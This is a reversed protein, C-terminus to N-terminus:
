RFNQICCGGGIKVRNKHVSENAVFVYCIPTRQVLYLCLVAKYLSSILVGAAQKEESTDHVCPAAFNIKIGIQLTERM